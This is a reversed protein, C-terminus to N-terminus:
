AGGGRRKRRSGRCRRCIVRKIRIVGVWTEFHIMEAAQRGPATGELFGGAFHLVVGRGLAAVDIHEDVGGADIERVVLEIFM